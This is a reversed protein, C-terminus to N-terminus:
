HHGMLRSFVFIAFGLVLALMLPPILIAVLARWASFRHVEGICKLSIVLGWLGFVAEVLLIKYFSPDIHPLEGPTPVPMPVGMLVVVLLIIEAVIAPVQSWALAARVEVRSAVGGLLGGSWRFVAATAYLVVVGLAAQLAVVGAVWLPWLVSLNANNSLAKSWQGALANLGPGVAALAIVYRTPGTDVIRRITARPQTWITIFPTISDGAGNAM